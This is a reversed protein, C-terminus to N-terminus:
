PRDGDTLRPLLPAALLMCALTQLSNGFVFGSHMPGLLIWAYAYSLLVRSRLSGRAGKRHLVGALLGLGASVLPALWLGFDLLMGGWVTFFLGAREVAEGLDAFLTDPLGLLVQIGRLPFAGQYAGLLPGALRPDVVLYDLERLPHTLYVGVMAVNASVDGLASDSQVLREAAPSLRADIVNLFRDLAAASTEGKATARVSFIYLSGVVVLGAHALLLPRILPARPLLSQRSALRACCAGVFLMLTVFASSRGGYLAVVLAPSFSAACVCAASGRSCVQGCLLYLVLAVNSFSYLATGLWLLPTRAKDGGGETQLEHRLEGLGVSLDLGTIFVKDIAVMLAALLGIVAFGGILRDLRAREPGAPAELPSAGSWVGAAAAALAFGLVCAATFAYTELHLPRDYQIPSLATLLGHAAWTSLMLRAPSGAAATALSRGSM